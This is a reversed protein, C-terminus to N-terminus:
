IEKNKKLQTKRWAILKKLGERVTTKYMFDLEKRAKEIDASRKQVYPRKVDTKYIPKAKSSTLEVLLDVLETLSTLKGTGVNYVGENVSSKLALLNARAVDEVFVFDLAQKGDGHVVPSEGKDIKDLWNILVETYVGFIDMRPGYVNFYRLIVYNLSYMKRFAKLMEETAIKAAGYASTNNFPHNEDMPLYSPDGYVSASSSFIIKKIKNKVCSELVNFSGDVLVEQCLRPEEACRTIRIAAMHFVYDAKKLVKDVLKQDRIDGEVIRAIKSKVANELNLKVGRTFNDLIIIRAPKEQVLQDVTNSGICGGGGTIVINSGKIKM